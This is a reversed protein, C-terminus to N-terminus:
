SQSATQRDDPLKGSRVAARIPDLATATLTATLVAM